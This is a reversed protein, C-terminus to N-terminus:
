DRIYHTFVADFDPQIGVLATYSVFIGLLVWWGFFVRKGLM